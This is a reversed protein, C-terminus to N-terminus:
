RRQGGLEGLSVWRGGDGIVLHDLVEIGLLGGAAVADRTTRLDETSPTPDGSPHNHAIVIASANLRVAMRFLEAMRITAGAVTGVYVTERGLPKHKRDLATVVVRETEAGEFADRLQAYADAASMIPRSPEGVRRRIFTYEWM